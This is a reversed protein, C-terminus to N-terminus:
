KVPKGAKPFLSKEVISTNRMVRWFYNSGDVVIKRRGKKALTM